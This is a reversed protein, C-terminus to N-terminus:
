ELVACPVMGDPLVLRVVKPVMGVPFAELSMRSPGDSINSFTPVRAYWPYCHNLYDWGIVSMLIKLTPLIPSYGKILALRASENDIFFIM